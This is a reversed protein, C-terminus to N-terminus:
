KKSNKSLALIKKYKRVKNRVYSQGFVSFLILTMGIYFSPTLIHAENFFLMAFLIGYVPELNGALSVTFASLTKLVAIYLLYLLVTCFFALVFLWLFDVATPIITGVPSFHLYVPILASMFLAGGLLEYFLMSRSSKGVEAVKNLVTYLAFLAASIVGIVIGLRFSVDFSFILWIGAVAILSYLLETFSFKTKKFLPEFFVTFFGVLSYCVVGVSINSYKISGFFFMLHLALLAGLGLFRLADKLNEDPKKKMFILMVAFILFAFLMRYWVIVVENLSILKAFLGTFGSLLVSIHLKLYDLKKNSM